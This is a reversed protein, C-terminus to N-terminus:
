KKEELNLEFENAVLWERWQAAAAEDAFRITTWTPARFRIDSHGNHEITRVDCGLKKLTELYQNQELSGDGHLTKTEALRFQVAETGSSFAADVQPWYVDFGASVLWHNWQKASEANDLAISKWEQCHYRVDIHGGHQSKKAVCGLQEVIKLHKEAEQADHFHMAKWDSLQFSVTNSIVANEPPALKSSDRNGEAVRVGSDDQGFGIQGSLFVFVTAFAGALLLRVFISM